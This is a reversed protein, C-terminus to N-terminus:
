GGFVRETYDNAFARGPDLRDRVALFDDFRPYAARLSAADRYHMKGWHPRGDLAACVAEFGRFYEEYPMGVFQHIAVYANERGYGHSLWIDDAATFRVEAPFTIRYPLSDIVRRLGAFAEPLAARPIGYEMEVFRVRRSTVFVEHSVGTYERPSLARASIANITPIVAPVARGLRCAGAFVRNALLDDDLWRRWGPLPADSVAVRNNVKTQTRETYPFWFFEFHENTGVYEDLGSLVDALPTPRERARLTFAPACSLTVETIVGLAGVGVRAAAFVDANETPSCRLRTGDATVLELAAVFTSLCGYGAGTGHTGTALAGSITQADIDGLNPLALGLGALAANLQRLTTGARVTVLGSGADAAVVGALGGLELRLGSTAAAATFSHGSGVAKVTHGAAVAKTIADAVEDTSNPRAVEASITQENGAWNRWVPTTLTSM